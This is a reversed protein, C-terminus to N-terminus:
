TRKCSAGGGNLGANQTTRTVKSNTYMAIVTKKTRMDSTKLTHTAPCASDEGLETSEATTEARMELDFGLRGDRRLSSYLRLSQKTTDGQLMKTTQTGLRLICYASHARQHHAPLPRHVWATM